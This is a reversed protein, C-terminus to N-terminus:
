QNVADNEKLKAGVKQFGELGKEAGKSLEGGVKKATKSVGMGLKAINQEARDAISFEKLGFAHSELVPYFETICWDSTLGQVADSVEEVSPGEWLHFIRQGGPSVVEQTPLIHRCVINHPLQGTTVADTLVMGM